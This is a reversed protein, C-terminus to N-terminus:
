VANSDVTVNAVEQAAGCYESLSVCKATCSIVFCALNEPSLKSFVEFQTVVHHRLYTCKRYFIPAVCTVESPRVTFSSSFDWMAKIPRLIELSMIANALLNQKFNIVVQGYFLQETRAAMPWCAGM